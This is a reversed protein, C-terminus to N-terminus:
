DGVEKELTLIERYEKSFAKKKMEERQKIIPEIEEKIVEEIIALEEAIVEEVIDMFTTKDTM